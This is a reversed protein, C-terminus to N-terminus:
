ESTDYDVGFLVLVFEKLFVNIVSVNLSLFLVSALYGLTKMYM